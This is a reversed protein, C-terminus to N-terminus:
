VKVTWPRNAIDYRKDEEFEFLFAFISKAKRNPEIMTWPIRTNWANLLIRKVLPKAVIKTSLFQRLLSLRTAKSCLSPINPIALLNDHFRLVSSGHQSAVNSNVM